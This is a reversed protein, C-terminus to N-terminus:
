DSTTLSAIFISVYLMTTHILTITHSRVEMQDGFLPMMLVPVGHFAAEEMSHRGCHTLFALMKPHGLLDNQPAWHTLHIRGSRQLQSIADDSINGTVKWVACVGGLSEVADRIRLMRDMEFTAKTGLSIFIVGDEAGNIFASIPSDEPLPMAPRATLSGVYHEEPYMERHAELETFYVSFKASAKAYELVQTCRDGSQRVRSIAMAAEPADVGIEHAVKCLPQLMMPGVLYRLVLSIVINATAGLIGMSATVFGSDFAPAWAQAPSSFSLLPHMSGFQAFGIPKQTYIHTHITMVNNHLM